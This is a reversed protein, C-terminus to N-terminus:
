RSRAAGASGSLRPLCLSLVGPLVAIRFTLSAGIEEGDAQAAVPREFDVQIERARRLLPSAPARGGQRVRLYRLWASPYEAVYEWESVVAHVDLLGDSCDNEGDFRLPGAYVPTNVVAVNYLSRTECVGDLTLRARGGHDGRVLSALAGGLYLGYGAVRDGLRRHIRNRLALVDADMGIAVSGLFPRGGLMGVDIPRRPGVAIAALARELADAGERLPRLGFSRAANNGTGAPLLALATQEARKAVLLAWVAVAATGDGGVAVLVESKTTDLLEVIRRLDSDCGRTDLEAEVRASGRLRALARSLDRARLRGNVVVAVRPQPMEHSRLKGRALSPRLSPRRPTAGARRRTGSASRQGRVAGPVVSPRPSRGPALLIGMALADAGAQRRARSTAIRIPHLDGGNAGSGFAGARTSSRSAPM